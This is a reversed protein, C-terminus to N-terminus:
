AMITINPAALNYFHVPLAMQQSLGQSFCSLQTHIYLMFTSSSWRGYLQITHAPVGNLHLALAGGARLSHSSIRSKPLNYLNPPLESVIAKLFVNVHDTTLHRKHAIPHAFYASINTNPDRTHRYIHSLRRIIAAVPCIDLNTRDHHIVANRAGTKSNDLQFSAATCHQLLYHRPLTPDLQSTGCWLTVDSICFPTTRTNTSPSKYTYEGVRLLYFWAVISLDSLARVKQSQAQLGRKFIHSLVGVPLALQPKPAPDERKYAELQRALPLYYRREPGVMPNPLGDLVFATSIARLAVKVQECGVPKPPSRYHGERIYVAFSGFMELRQKFSLEPLLPSFSPYNQHLYNVWINWFRRQEKHTSAVVGNFAARNAALYLRIQYAKRAVPM